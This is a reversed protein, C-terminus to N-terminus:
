LGAFNDVHIVRWFCFSSRDSCYVLAAIGLCLWALFCTDSYSFCPFRGDYFNYNVECNKRPGLCWRKWRQQRKM